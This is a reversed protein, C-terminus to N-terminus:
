PIILVGNIAAIALILSFCKALFMHFDTISMFFLCYSQQLLYIVYEQIAFLFKEWLLFIRSRGQLKSRRLTQKVPSFFAGFCSHDSLHQNTAQSIDCHHKVQTSRDLERCRFLFFWFFKPFSLFFFFGQTQESTFFASTSMM